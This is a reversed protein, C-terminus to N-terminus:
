HLHTVLASARFSGDFPQDAGWFRLGTGLDFVIPDEGPVDLVVCATNGGYRHNAESCCPTSGRVGYFTIRLPDGRKGRSITSGDARRTMRFSVSHGIDDDPASDPRPWSVM